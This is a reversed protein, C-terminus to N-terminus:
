GRNEQLYAPKLLMAGVDKGGEESTGDLDTANTGDPRLSGELSAVLPQPFQGHVVMCAWGWGFEADCCMFMILCM